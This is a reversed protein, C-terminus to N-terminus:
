TKNNEKKLVDQFDVLLIIEDFFPSLAYQISNNAGISSQYILGTRLLAGMTAKINKYNDPDTYELNIMFREIYNGSIGLPPNGNEKIYKKDQERANYLQALLNIENDSLTELMQAYRNFDNAYISKSLKYGKALNNIAQALLRLNIRAVGNMAAQTYRHMLSIKDDDAMNNFSGNEIENFLIDRSEFLRKECHKNWLTELTNTPINFLSLIDTIASSVLSNSM